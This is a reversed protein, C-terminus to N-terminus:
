DEGFFTDEDFAEQKMDAEDSRPTSQSSDRSSNKSTAGESPWIGTRRFGEVSRKQQEIENLSNRSIYRLPYGSISLYVVGKATLGRLAEVLSDPLDKKMISLLKGDAAKEVALLEKRTAQEYVVLTQFGETESCNRLASLASRYYSDGMFPQETDGSENDVTVSVNEKKEKQKSQPIIQELIEDTMFFVVLTTYDRKPKGVRFKCRRLDNRISYHKKYYLTMVEDMYNIIEESAEMSLLHKRRNYYIKGNAPFNVLQWTTMIYKMYESQNKNEDVKKEDIFGTMGPRLNFFEPLVDKWVKKKLNKLPLGRRPMPTDARLEDVAGCLVCLGLLGLSFGRGWSLLREKM